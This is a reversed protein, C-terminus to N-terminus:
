KLMWYMRLETTEIVVSHDMTGIQLEQFRSKQQIQVSISNIQVKVTKREIIKVSVVNILHFQFRVSSFKVIEM